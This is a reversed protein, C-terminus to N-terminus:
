RTWSNALPAVFCRQMDISMSKANPVPIDKSSDPIVPGEVIIIGGDRMVQRLRALALLPNKLHYYVGCFIVVDFDQVGLQQVDYVSVKPFYKVASGLIKHALWFRQQAQVWWEGQLYDTAYVEAAGRKEAEFSWVGEWCGIDLVKKHYCDIDNFTQMVHAQGWSGETVIGNGLDIRQSWTHSKVQEILEAQSPTREADM